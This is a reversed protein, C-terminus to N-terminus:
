PTAPPAAPAAPAPAPAAPTPAAATPAAPVPKPGPAPQPVPAPATKPAPATTPVPSPVAASPSLSPPAPPEPAAGADAGADAALAGGDVAEAGADATEVAADTGADPPPSPTANWPSRKLDTIVLKMARDIPISVQGKDRNSWTAPASLKELQERKLTRYANGGVEDRVAGVNRSEHRVLANVALSIGIMAATGVAVLTALAGTNVKDDETAM